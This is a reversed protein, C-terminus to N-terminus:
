VAPGFKALRAKKRAAEEASEPVAAVAEGAFRAARAAKKAEDEASLPAATTANQFKASRQAKLDAAPEPATAGFRAERAALKVAADPVLPIGFREQLPAHSGAAHPPCLSPSAICHQPARQAHLAGRAEEQRGCHDRWCRAGRGGACCDSGLHGPTNPIELRRAAIRACVAPAAPAAM